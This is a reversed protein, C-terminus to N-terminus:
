RVCLIRMECANNLSPIQHIFRRPEQLNNVMAPREEMAAAALHWRDLHLGIGVQGQRGHLTELVHPPQSM